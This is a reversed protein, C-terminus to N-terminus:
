AFCKQFICRVSFSVVQLIRPLSLRKPTCPPFTERRVYELPSPPQPINIHLGLKPLSGVSPPMASAPTHGIQGVNNNVPEYRPEEAAFPTPHIFLHPHPRTGTPTEYQTSANSGAGASPPQQDDDELETMRTTKLRKAPPLVAVDSSSPPVGGVEEAEEKQTPEMEDRERKTSKEKERRERRRAGRRRQQICQTSNHVREKSEDPAPTNSDRRTGDKSRVRPPLRVIAFCRKVQGRDGSPCSTSPEPWASFLLDEEMIVFVLRRRSPPPSRRHVVVVTSELVSRCM